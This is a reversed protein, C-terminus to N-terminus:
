AAANSSSGYCQLWEPRDSSSGVAPAPAKAAHSRDYEQTCFVWTQVHGIRSRLVVGCAGLPPYASPGYYRETTSVPASAATTTSRNTSRSVQAFPAILAMPPM